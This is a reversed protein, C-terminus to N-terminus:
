LDARRLFPILAESVKEHWDEQPYHGVEELRLFDAGKLSKAYTEAAEVPLWPDRDGWLLLLPQDWRRLDQAIAAATQPVKLQGVIKKLMRGAASSKLFPKRYIDLDADEVVYGGGGELTRDVTLPDQCTMDGVLPLGLQQLKWPLTAEPFVPANLLALRRVREPHAIAYRAAVSGGLYGQGVLVVAELGLADLFEGLGQEFAAPSYAFDYDPKESFGTGIWDPAICRFGSAALTPMVERWSYSMSVLGHLLVVPPRDNPQDPTIQRYFWTRGAAEISEKILEAM